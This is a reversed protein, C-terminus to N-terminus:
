ITNYQPITFLGPHFYISADFPTQRDKAKVNKLTFDYGEGTMHIDSKTFYGRNYGWAIYLKGKNNKQPVNFISKEVIQIADEQTDQASISDNFLSFVFFPTLGLYKKM